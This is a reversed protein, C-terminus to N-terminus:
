SGPMTWQLSTFRIPGNIIVNVTNMQLDGGGGVQSISADAIPNDDSDFFRAWSATGTANAFADEAIPNFTLIGNLAVGCPDTLDHESLVTQTTVPVGPNAPQVGDYIKIKGPGAGADIFDIITQAIATRGALILKVAM